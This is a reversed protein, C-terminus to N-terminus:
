HQQYNNPHQLSIYQKSSAKINKQIPFKYKTKTYRTNSYTEYIIYM